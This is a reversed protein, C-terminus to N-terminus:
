PKEPLSRWHTVDDVIGNWRWQEFHKKASIYAGEAVGGNKSYLLVCEGSKPYEVKIPIWKDRLSTPRLYWDVKQLWWKPQLSKNDSERRMIADKDFVGNKYMVQYNGEEPLDKESKILVKVYIVEDPKM